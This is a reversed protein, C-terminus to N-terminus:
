PAVWSGKWENDRWFYQARVHGNKRVQLYDLNSVVCSLVCFNEFGSETNEPNLEDTSVFEPLNNTYEQTTTGPSLIGMYEIRSPPTLNEWLIRAYEDKHHITVQSDARVQERTEQNYFLWNARSNQLLDAVKGTRYDSFAILIRADPEAERLTLTRQRIGESGITALVPFRFGHDEHNVGEMIQRWLHFKLEKLSIIREM